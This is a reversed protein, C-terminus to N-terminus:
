EETAQSPPNNVIESYENQETIFSEDAEIQDTQYTQDTQETQETQENSLPQSDLQKDIHLDDDELFEEEDEEEFIKNIKKLIDEEEEDHPQDSKIQAQESPDNIYNDDDAIEHSDEEEFIKEEPKDIDNNQRDANDTLDDKEEKSIENDEKTYVIQDNEDDNNQDEKAETNDFDEEEEETIQNPLPKLTASDTPIQDEEALEAIKQKEATPIPEEDIDEEENPLLVNEETYEEHDDKRSSQRSSRKSQAKESESEIDISDLLKILSEDDEDEDVQLFDIVAKRLLEYEEKNSKKTQSKTTAMKNDPENESKQLLEANKLLNAGATRIMDDYDNFTRNGSRLAQLQAALVDIIQQQKKIQAEIASEEKTPKPEAHKPQHPGFFDRLFERIQPIGLGQSRLLRTVRVTVPDNEQDDVLKM